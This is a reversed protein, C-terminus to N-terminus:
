LVFLCFLVITLNLGSQITYFLTGALRLDENLVTQRLNQKYKMEPPCKTVHVYHTLYIM